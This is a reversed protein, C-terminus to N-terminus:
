GFLWKFAELYSIGRSVASVIDHSSVIGVLKEGKIVPLHRVGKNKMLEAAEKITTNPSCIIVPSSMTDKVKAESIEIGKAVAKLFDSETVIGRVKDEEIVVLSGIKRETMLRAADSLSKGPEITVVDKIMISEVTDYEYVM